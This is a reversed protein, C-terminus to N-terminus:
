HGEGGIIIAEGGSNKIKALAAASFKHAHIKVKRTLEGNGLIKVDVGVKQALRKEFYDQLTIEDLGIREISDLNIINYQKKFINTFGRKPVRRTLPMQGGEFSFNRSYGSRSKQGKSGRGATKGLGSGPGRGVRKRNKVAGKAPKLNALTM